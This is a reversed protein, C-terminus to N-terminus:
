LTHNKFSRPIFTTKKASFTDCICLNPPGSETTQFFDCGKAYNMAREMLRNENLLQFYSHKSWDEVLSSVELRGDPLIEAKFMVGELLKDAFNYGDFYGVQHKKGDSDSFHAAFPKKTTKKM